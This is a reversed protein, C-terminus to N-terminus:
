IARHGRVANVVRHIAYSVAAPAELDMNHGSRIVVQTSNSSLKVLKAQGDKREQELQAAPVDLDNGFGGDARTLVLLPLAGLSGNLPKALWKAYYVESWERQSNEADEIAPLGQAWLHLKQDTAPLTKYITALKTPAPPDDPPPTFKDAATLEERPAPIDRVQAGEGLRVTQKGGIAVRMGEHASDVLVMGAAEQPYITAFNIMVPGGYSHGVLVFPGKEGLKQLADRLELNLQAFTRPKPGPDSWAYGARDYTCIRTYHSVESQVLAWDFSFDGLGTEVVVTPTGSGSCHVHLQHGGLDVLKGPPAPVTTEGSAAIHFVLVPLISIVLAEILWTERTIRKV